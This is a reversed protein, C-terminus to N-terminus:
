PGDPVTRDVDPVFLESVNSFVRKGYLEIPDKLEPILDERNKSQLHEVAYELANGTFNCNVFLFFQGSDSTNDKGIFLFMKM